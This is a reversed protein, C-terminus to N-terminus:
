LIPPASPSIRARIAKRERVCRLMHTSHSGFHHKWHRQKHKSNSGIHTGSPRKASDSLLRVMYGASVRTRALRTSSCRTVGCRIQGIHQQKRGASIRRSGRGRRRVRRKAQKPDQMIKKTLSPCNTNAQALQM